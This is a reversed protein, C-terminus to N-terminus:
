LPCFCIFNFTISRSMHLYSLMKELKRPIVTNSHSKFNIKKIYSIVRFRTFVNETSFKDTM